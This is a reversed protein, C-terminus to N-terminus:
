DNVEDEELASVERLHVTPAPGLPSQKLAKSNKHLKVPSQGLYPNCVLFQERTILHCCMLNKSTCWMEILCSM